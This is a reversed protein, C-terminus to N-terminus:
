TISMNFFFNTNINTKEVPGIGLSRYGIWKMLGDRGQIEVSLFIKM